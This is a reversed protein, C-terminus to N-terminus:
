NEEVIQKGAESAAEASRVLYIRPAKSVYPPARVEADIGLSRPGGSVGGSAGTVEDADSTREDEAVLLAAVAGEGADSRRWVVFGIALLLVLTILTSALAMQGQGGQGDDWEFEQVPGGAM